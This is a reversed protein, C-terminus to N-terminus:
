TGSGGVRLGPGRGGALGGPKLAAVLRGVALAANPLWALLLSGHVLDFHAEPLPDRLLNHVRVELAPHTLDRLPTTDLDTALVSGSPGVREALWRAVSGAGSGVELCRWGPGVGRGRLHRFTGPDLVAELARLRDLQGVAANDFPYAQEANTM